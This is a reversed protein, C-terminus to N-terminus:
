VENAVVEGHNDVGRNIEVPVLGHLAEGGQGALFLPFGEDGLELAAGGGGAAILFPLRHFANEVEVFLLLMDSKSM